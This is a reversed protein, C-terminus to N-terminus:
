SSEQCERGPTLQGVQGKWLCKRVIDVSINFVPVAPDPQHVVEDGLGLSSMGGTSSARNLQPANPEGCTLQNASRRSSIGVDNAGGVSVPAAPLQNDSGRSSM